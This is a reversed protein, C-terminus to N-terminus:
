IYLRAVRMGPKEPAATFSGGQKGLSEALESAVQYLKYTYFSFQVFERAEEPGIDWIMTDQLTLFCPSQPSTVTFLVRM